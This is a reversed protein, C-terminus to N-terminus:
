SIARPYSKATMGLAALFRPAEFPRSGEGAARSSTGPSDYGEIVLREPGPAIRELAELIPTRSPLGMDRRIAEFDLRSDVLTGDLDFIFGRILGPQSM